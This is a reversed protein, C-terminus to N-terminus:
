ALGEFFRESPQQLAAGHLHLFIALPERRKFIKLVFHAFLRARRNQMQPRLFACQDTAYNSDISIVVVAQRKLHFTKAAGPWIM